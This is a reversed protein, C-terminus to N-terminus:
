VGFSPTYIPLTSLSCLSINPFDFHSDRQASSWVKSDSKNLDESLNQTFIRQEENIQEQLQRASKEHNLQRQIDEKEEELQTCALSKM